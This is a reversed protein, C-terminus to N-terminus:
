KIILKKPERLLIAEGLSKGKKVYQVELYCVEVNKTNREKSHAKCLRGALKLDKRKLKYNNDYEIIVYPSANDNLHLWIDKKNAEELLNWNEKANKGINITFSDACITIM